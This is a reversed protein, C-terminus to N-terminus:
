QQTKLMKLDREAMTRERILLRANPDPALNEAFLWNDPRGKGEPYRFDYQLLLHTLILKAESSAFFRGPCAHKGHGFPLSTSETSALQFRQANAPKSSDERARSYRFPDFSDSHAGPPLLDADRLMPDTPMAIHTGTPLMIGDSLTLPEKVIRDFTM